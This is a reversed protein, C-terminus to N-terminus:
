RRTKGHSSTTIPTTHHRFGQLVFVIASFFSQSQSPLFTPEGKVVTDALIVKGTPPSLSSLEHRHHRHFHYRGQWQIKSLSGNMEIGTTTVNRLRESFTQSWQKGFVHM